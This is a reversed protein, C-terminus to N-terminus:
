KAVKVTMIDMDEEGERLVVVKKTVKERPTGWRQYVSAYVKSRASARNRDRAFYHVWIKYVGPKAKPLVYM